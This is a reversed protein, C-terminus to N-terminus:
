SVSCLKSLQQRFANRYEKQRIGYIFPNVVSNVGVLDGLIIFIKLPVCSGDCIFVEIVLVISYPTLCFLWIGIVMGFTKMTKLGRIVGRRVACSSTTTSSSTVAESVTWMEAIKRRQNRAVKFIKYNFFLVTVVPTGVYLILGVSTVSLDTRCYLRKDDDGETFVVLFCLYVFTSFWIAAVIIYTRRWTMITPYQLPFSIFLYRDVTIALLTTISLAVTTSAVAVSIRCFLMQNGEIGTLIQIFEVIWIPYYTSCTILDTIALNVVLYSTPIKRQNLLVNYIIVGLNGLIGVVTFICKFIVAGIFFGASPLYDSTSNTEKM